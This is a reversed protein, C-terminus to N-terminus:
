GGVGRHVDGPEDQEDAAPRRAVLYWRNAFPRLPRSSSARYDRDLPKGEHVLRDIPSIRRVLPIYRWQDLFGSAHSEVVSLGNRQLLADAEARSFGHVPEVGRKRYWWRWAHVSLNWRGALDAVVFGGPRTVRAMEAIASAIDPVLLLTSFSYVVDFTDDRFPLATGDGLALRVHDRRAGERIMGTSRDVGVLLRDLSRLSRLHEGKAAGVDLVRADPGALREPLDRKLRGATTREIGIAYTEAIEDWIADGAHSGTM